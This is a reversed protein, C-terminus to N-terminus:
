SNPLLDTNPPNNSQFGYVRVGVQSNVPLTLLHEYFPLPPQLLPEICVPELSYMCAGPAQGDHEGLCEWHSLRARLTEGM